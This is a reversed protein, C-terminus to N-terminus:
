PEPLEVVKFQLRPRTNFQISTKGTYHCNPRFNSTMAAATTREMSAPSSKESTSRSAEKRRGVRLKDESRSRSSVSRIIRSAEAAPHRRPELVTSPLLTGM